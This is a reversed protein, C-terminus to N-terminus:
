FAAIHQSGCDIHAELYVSRTSVDGIMRFGHTVGAPIWLGQQPPVVWAGHDTSVVMTGTVAHLLQSRRHSHAPHERGSAYNNGVAFVPRSVNEYDLARVHRIM